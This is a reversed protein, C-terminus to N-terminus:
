EGEENVDFEEEVPWGKGRLFEKRLTNNVCDEIAKRIYFECEDYNYEDFYYKLEYYIAKLPKPTRLLVEADGYGEEIVKVSRQRIFYEFAKKGGRWGPTEHLVQREFLEQEQRLLTVLQQRAAAEAALRAARAEDNTM